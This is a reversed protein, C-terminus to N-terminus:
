REIREDILSLNNHNKLAKESKIRTLYSSSSSSSGTPPRNLIKISEPNNM